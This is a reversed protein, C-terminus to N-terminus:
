EGPMEVAGLRYGLVALVRNVGDMRLSEKGLELECIFRRGVRALDALEAQTMGKLRRQVRVFRGLLAASDQRKRRM